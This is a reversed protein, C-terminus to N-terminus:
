GNRARGPGDELERSFSQQKLEGEPNPQYFHVELTDYDAIQLHQSSIATIRDLRENVENLTKQDDVTPDFAVRMTVRLLRPSDKHMRRQGGEVRPSSDEFEEALALQLPMFPELHLKSYLRILSTLLLGFGFLSIVIWRGSVMRTPPATELVQTQPQPQPM